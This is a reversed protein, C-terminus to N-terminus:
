AECKVLAGVRLGRNMRKGKELVELFFFVKTSCKRVGLEFTLRRGLLHFRFFTSNMM